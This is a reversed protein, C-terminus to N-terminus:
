AKVDYNDKRSYGKTAWENITKNVDIESQCTTCWWLDFLKLKVIAKTNCEPCHHKEKM